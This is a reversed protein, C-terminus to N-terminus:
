YYLWDFDAQKPAIGMLWANYPDIQKSSLTDVKDELMISDPFYRRVYDEKQIPFGSRRYLDAGGFLHIMEHCITGLHLTIGKYRDYLFAIDFPRNNVLWPSYAHCHGASKSFVLVHFQTCNNRLCENEALQYLPALRNVTLAENIFGIKREITDSFTPHHYLWTTYGDYCGGLTANFFAIDHCGYRSAQSMIWRQSELIQREVQAVSPRDWHNQTTSVFVALM